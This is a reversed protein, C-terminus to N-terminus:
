ASPAPLLAELLRPLEEALESRPVVTDAGARRAARLAGADTHRGFALVRAGAAKAALIIQTADANREQLDVVVVAPAGAIAERATEASDAIRVRLGLAQAAATIRPQFMLDSVAIVATRDV